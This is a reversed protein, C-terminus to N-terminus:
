FISTLNKTPLKEGEQYQILIIGYLYLVVKRRSSKISKQANGEITCLPILTLTSFPTTHYASKMELTNVIVLDQIKNHGTKNTKNKPRLKGNKDIWHKNYSETFTTISGQSENTNKEYFEHHEPLSIDGTQKVRASRNEVKDKNLLSFIYM